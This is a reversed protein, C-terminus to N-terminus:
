PALLAEPDVGSRYAQTLQSERAISYQVLGAQNLMPLIERSLAEAERSAPRASWLLVASLSVYIINTLVFGCIIKSSLKM